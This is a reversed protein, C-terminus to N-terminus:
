LAAGGGLECCCYSRSSLSHRLDFQDFKLVESYARRSSPPANRYGNPGPPGRQIYTRRCGCLPSLNSM